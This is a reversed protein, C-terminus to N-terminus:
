DPQAPEHLTGELVRLRQHLDKTANVLAAVIPDLAVGLQPEADPGSIQAVAEPLISQVQQASFGHEVHPAIVNTREFAIPQLQLIEPLGYLSPQINSKMREDSANIYNGQGFVPGRNNGMYGDTVRFEAIRSGANTWYLDGNSVNWDFFWNSSLQLIRGSGGAYMGMGLNLAYVGAQAVVANAANVNSGADLDAHTRITGANDCYFLALGDYRYWVLNGNSNNFNLFWNTFNLNYNGGGATLYIQGAALGLNGQVSLNGSADWTGLTAGPNGSGDMASFALQHNFGAYMGFAYGGSVDWVTVSPSGGSNQSIIRGASDRLAGTVTGGGLPLYNGGVFSQTALAGVYASDVWCELSGDWGFSIARASSGVWSYTIGGNVSLGGSLAGGTLALYHGSVWGILALQGQVSGDVAAEIWTGDWGFALHHAGWYGGLGPFAVGLGGVGLAGTMTSGTLAVYTAGIAPLITGNNNSIATDVYSRSAAQPPTPTAAPLTIPGTMVGGSLALYRTDTQAISQFQNWDTIAFAKPAVTIRAQLLQGANVVFDGATYGASPAYVRIPLLDVPAQTPDIMGLRLDPLNLWLEGRQRTGNSPRQGTASFRQTQIRSTM